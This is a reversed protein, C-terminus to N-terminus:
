AESKSDLYTQLGEKSEALAQEGQQWDPPCVEGHEAHFKLAKILRLIEAPSRGLPLDNCQVIRVFGEPDIIVTSRMPVRPSSTNLAEYATTLERSVDALLPFALSGIGGKEVPTSRWALHTHESDLSVGLVVVNEKEFASMMQNMELELPCVFTFDMPYFFLVVYQGKFM